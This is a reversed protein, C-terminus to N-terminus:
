NGGFGSPCNQKILHGNRTEPWLIGIHIEAHCM